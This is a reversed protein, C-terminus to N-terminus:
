LLKQLKARTFISISKGDEIEGSVIASEVQDISLSQVEIIEDEDGPLRFPSLKSALYLHQKEDCFGPAPYLTGLSQWEEAQQGVEEALERKACDLPLEKPDLTGAPFELITKGIAHRYQRVLILKGDSTIPLIVVAGPHRVIDRKVVSGSPLEVEEQSVYFAKGTYINSSKITRYAKMIL